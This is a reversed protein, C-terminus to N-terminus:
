ELRSAHMHQGKAAKHSIKWVAMTICTLQASLFQLDLSRLHYHKSGPSTMPYLSATLEPNCNREARCHGPPHARARVHGNYRPLRSNYHRAVPQDLAELLWECIHHAHHLHYHQLHLLQRTLPICTQGSLMGLGEMLHTLWSCSCVFRWLQTNDPHRTVMYRTKKHVGVLM